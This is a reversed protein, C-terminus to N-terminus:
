CKCEFLHFLRGKASHVISTIFQARGGCKICRPSKQSPESGLEGNLWGTVESQMPDTAVSVAVIRDCKECSFNRRDVGQHGPIIQALDMRSQCRPCHPREISTLSPAASRSQSYDPM